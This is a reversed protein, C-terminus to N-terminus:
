LHYDAPIMAIASATSQYPPILASWGYFERSEVTTVMVDKMQFRGLLLDSPKQKVSHDTLRINIAIRGVLNMYLFKLKEGEQFFCYGAEASEENAAQALIAIQKLSLGAFFPYRRILELSVM